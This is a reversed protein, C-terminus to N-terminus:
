KKDRPDEFYEWESKVEGGKSPNHREYGSGDFSPKAQKLEKLRKGDERFKQEQYNKQRLKEISRKSSEGHRKISDRGAEGVTSNLGEFVLGYIFGSLGLPSLPEVAPVERNRWVGKKDQYYESKQPQTFAKPPSTDKNRWVGDKDQYIDDAFSPHYTLATVLFFLIVVGAKIM